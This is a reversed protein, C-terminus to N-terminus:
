IERYFTSYLDLIRNEQDTDELDDWDELCSPCLDENGRPIYENGCEECERM